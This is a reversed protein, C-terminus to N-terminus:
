REAEAKMEAIKEMIHESVRQYAARGKAELEGPDFKIPKGIHVSVPVCNIRKAGKPLAEYSGKIYVPVVPVNAKAAIFGVGPKAPQLNGDETRKGEPFLVLPMGSKLVKLSDKIARTDGEDRKVPFANVKSFAWRSIPKNFLTDRAMYAAQRKITTGLLPPDFYSAHNSAFIFAGSKPVNNRGYVKRKLFLKFFILYTSWGIFYWM